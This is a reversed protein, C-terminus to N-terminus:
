QEDPLWEVCVSFCLVHFTVVSYKKSFMWAIFVPLAWQTSNFSLRIPSNDSM